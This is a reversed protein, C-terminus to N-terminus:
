SKRSLRRWETIPRFRDQVKTRQRGACAIAGDGRECKGLGGHRRRSQRPGRGLRGLKERGQCARLSTLVKLCSTPLPGVIAPLAPQQLADPRVFARRAGHGDGQVIEPATAGRFSGPCAAAWQGGM